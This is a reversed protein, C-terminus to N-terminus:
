YVDLFDSQLAKKIIEKCRELTKPSLCTYWNFIIAQLLYHDVLSVLQIMHLQNAVEIPNWLDTVLKGHTLHDYDKVIDLAETGWQALATIAEEYDTIYPSKTAQTILEHGITQSAEPSNLFSELTELLEKDTFYVKTNTM